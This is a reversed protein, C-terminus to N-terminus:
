NTSKFHEIEATKDLQRFKDNATQIKKKQDM